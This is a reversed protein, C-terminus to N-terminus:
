NNAVLTPPTNPDDTHWQYAADTGLATNMADTATQWNYTTGDIKYAGTGEANWSDIQGVAEGDFGSWFCANAESTVQLCGVIGGTCYEHSLTGTSYCAIVADFYRCYGAIGGLGVGSAEGSFSCARIIEDSSLYSENHNGVIGGVYNKGQVVASSHCYEVTGVNNGVLSGISSSKSVTNTIHGSVVCHSITGENYGTVAGVVPDSSNTNNIYVDSLTLNQVRGSTGIYCILGGYEYAGDQQLNRIIHGNGDFTGTYKYDNTANGVPEWEDTLTIDTALTCSTAPDANAKEAWTNLGEATYVTYTKGDDSVTFDVLTISGSGSTGTNWDISESVQVDLGQENVTLTYVTMVGSYFGNVRSDLRMETTYTADGVKIVIEPYPSFAVAQPIVFAEFSAFTGEARTELRHPIVELKSASYDEGLMFSKNFRGTTILNTLKVSLEDGYRKLYDSEKINIVVKALQHEFTLTTNDRDNFPINGQARMLDKEAPLGNTQDAPVEWREPMADSYPYWALITKTEETDTWWFPDNSTLMATAYDASPNVSYAKIVDGEKVAVTQVGQWNNDLTGRTAPVAEATMGGATLVLPYQGEPLRTGNVQEDQTCATMLSAALTCLLLTHKM